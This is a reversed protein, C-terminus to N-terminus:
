HPATRYPSRKKNTRAATYLQQDILIEGAEAAASLRSALITVTGIAAYDFRGEFGIHGLTAHGSAPGIGIVPNWIQAKAMRFESNGDPRTDRGGNERSPNEHNFMALPDNFFIMLETLQTTSGVSGVGPEAGAEGVAGHYDRLVEFM